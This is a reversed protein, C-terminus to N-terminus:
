TEVLLLLNYDLHADVVEFEVGMMKMGLEVQLSPIIGHLRFSCRDFTTMMNMSKFFTPSGLGKWCALSVVITVVGEYFVICKNTTKLCDVHVQFAVHCPFLLQVDHTKFSVVTPSDLNAVGLYALLAKRDLPCDHLVKLGLMM